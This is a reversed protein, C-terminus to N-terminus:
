SYIHFIIKFGSKCRDDATWIDSFGCQHVMQDTLLDRDCGLFRLRGSVTDLGYIGTLVTLDDEEIGRTDVLCFVLQALVHDLYCLSCEFIDIHDKPQYLRRGKDACSFTM